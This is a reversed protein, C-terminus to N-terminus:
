NKANRIILELKESAKFAGDLNERLLKILTETAKMDNLPAALLAENDDNLTLNMILPKLDDFVSVLESINVLSLIIKAIREIHRLFMDGAAKTNKDGDKTREVMKGWNNVDMFPALDKPDPIVCGLQCAIRAYLLTSLILSNTAFYVIKAIDEKKYIEKIKRASILKQMTEFAYDTHCKFFAPLIIVVKRLIEPMKEVDGIIQVTEWLLDRLEDSTSSFKAMVGEPLPEYTIQPFNVIKNVNDKDCLLLISEKINQILEKADPVEFVPTNDENVPFLWVPGVFVTCIEEDSFAVIKNLAEQDKTTSYANYIAYFNGISTLLLSERIYRNGNKAKIAERIDGTDKLLKRVDYYTLSIGNKGDQNDASVCIMQPKNSKM